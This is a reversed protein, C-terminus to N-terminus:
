GGAFVNDSGECVKDGCSLPDGIRCVQRGNVYV